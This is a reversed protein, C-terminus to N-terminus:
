MPEDPDLRHAVLAAPLAPRLALPGGPVTQGAAVAKKADALTIPNMLIAASARDERVADLAARMERVPSLAEAPIGLKGLLIAELVHVDDGKLAQAGPVLTDRRLSLLFFRTAPAAVVAFSVSGAGFHLAREVEKGTVYFYERVDFPERGLAAIAAEIAKSSVGPAVVRHPREIALGADQEAVVLVPTAGSSARGQRDLGAPSRARAATAYARQAELDARGSVLHLKREMLPALLWAQAAPDDLSWLRHRVGDATTVDLRPAERELREFTEAGRGEADDYTVVPLATAVGAGLAAAGQAEDPPAVISVPAEVPLLAIFGRREREGSALKMTAVYRYLMPTTDHVLAGATVLADLAGPTALGEVLSAATSPDAILGRFPLLTPM